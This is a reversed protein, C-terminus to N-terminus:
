LECCYKKRYEKLLKFEYITDCELETEITVKFFEVVNSLEEETAGRRSMVIILESLEVIFKIREM